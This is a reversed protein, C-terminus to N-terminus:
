SLLNIRQEMYEIGQNIPEVVDSWSNNENLSVPQNVSRRTIAQASNLNKLGFSVDHGLDEAISIVMAQNASGDPVQGAAISAISEAASPCSVRLVTSRQNGLGEIQQVAGKMSKVMATLADAESAFAQKILNM